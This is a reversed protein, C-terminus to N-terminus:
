AESSGFSEETTENKKSYLCASYKRDKYIQMKLQPLDQMQQEKIAKLEVIKWIKSLCM